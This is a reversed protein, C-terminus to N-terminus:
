DEDVTRQEDQTLNFHTYIDQDSYVKTLSMKPVWAIQPNDLTNSVRTYKLIFSVLKSKWFSRYFDLAQVADVETDFEAFVRYGSQKAFNPDIVKLHGLPDKKIEFNKYSVVVRWKNTNGTNGQWTTWSGQTKLRELLNVKTGNGIFPILEDFNTILRQEKTAADVFEIKGQYGPECIMSVTRVKANPFADVPNLILRKVGIAKLDRRMQKGLATSQMMWNAQVIIVAARPKYQKVKEVFHQYIPANGVSGDNYPPNCTWVANLM